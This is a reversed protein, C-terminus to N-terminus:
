LNLFHILAQRIAHFRVLIEKNTLDALEKGIELFLLAREQNTLQGSIHSIRRGHLLIRRETIPTFSTLAQTVGLYQPEPQKLTLPIYNKLEAEGLVLKPVLENKQKDLIYLCGRTFGAKAVITQTLLTLAFPSAGGGEVSKYANLFYHQLVQPCEQLAVNEQFLKGGQEEFSIVFGSYSQFLAPHEEVYSSLRHTITQSLEFVGSKGLESELEQLISHRQEIFNPSDVTLEVHAFREARSSCESLIKIERDQSSLELSTLARRIEESIHWNSLVRYGLEAPSVGLMNRLGDPFTCAGKRTFDLAEKLVTPYNFSILLLGLQRLLGFLFGVERNVGRQAALAETTSSATVVYALAKAEQESLNQTDRFSEPSVTKSILNLRSFVEPLNRLGDLQKGRPGPSQECLHRLFLTYLALDLKLDSTVEDSPRLEATLFLDEVLNKRGYTSIPLWNDLCYRSCKEALSSGSQPEGTDISTSEM